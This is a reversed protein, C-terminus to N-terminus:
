EYTPESLLEDILTIPLNSYIQNYVSQNHTLTTWDWKTKYRILLDESWPLGSNASLGFEKWDWKQKENEILEETWPLQSNLSFGYPGFVWKKWFKNLIETDWIIGENASLLRFNIKFQNDFIFQRDWPLKKNKSLFEWDWLNSYQNLLKNSWPLNENKSLEGWNWKDEFQSILIESWKIKPNASLREWNLQDQYDFLITKTWPIKKNTSLTSWDWKSKFHYIFNNTWPLGENRSLELWEWDNKFDEILKISWPLGTNASLGFYGWNWRRKFQEIFSRTWPLNPNRSFSSWNCYAEYKQILSSSWTIKPNACLWQWHLKSSHTQIIEDSWKINENRSIFSWKLIRSHKKLLEPTLPYYRSIIQTFFEPESSIIENLNKKNYNKLPPSVIPVKIITEQPSLKEIAVEPKGLIADSVLQDINKFGSLLLLTRIDSHKWQNSLFKIDPNIVQKLNPIKGIPAKIVEKLITTYHNLGITQLRKYIVSKSWSVFDHSSIILNSGSNFQSYLLPRIKLAELTIWLVLISFDDLYRNFFHKNRNPHQYSKGGTEIAPKGKLDPVFMGDYDVLVLQNSPTVMINDHKLDGHAFEQDLLWLALEKFKVQLNAIGEKDKRFCLEKIKEGLTVGEVWEMWVVSFEADDVWLEDTLFKYKVFYKSNIKNLYRSISRYRVKRDPQSSLFCKLAHSDGNQKAKFVTAFNGSAFYLDNGKKLIEVKELTAYSDADVVAEKYASINPQKNM